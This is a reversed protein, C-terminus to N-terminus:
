PLHLFQIQLVCLLRLVAGVVEHGRLLHQAGQVVADLHLQQLHLRRDLELRRLVLGDVLVGHRAGFLGLAEGTETLQEPVLGHVAIYFLAQDALLFGFGDLLTEGFDLGHLELQTPRVRRHCGDDTVQRHHIVAEQRSNLFLLLGFISHISLEHLFARGAAQAGIIFRELSQILPLQRGEVQVLELSM